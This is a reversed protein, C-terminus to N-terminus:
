GRGREKQLPSPPSAVIRELVEQTCNLVEENTFRIVSIGYEGIIKTREADYKKQKESNHYGGDVEVALKSEACYFDLIFGAKLPHQRRFKLKNLQRNRLLQWLLEEPETQKQRLERAFALLWPPLQKEVTIVDKGDEKPSRSDKEPLM